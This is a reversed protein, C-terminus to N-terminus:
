VARTSWYRLHQQFLGACGWGECGTRNFAAPRLGSECRATSLFRTADIHNRRAAAIIIAEIASRPILHTPAPHSSTLRSRKSGRSVQVPTSALRHRISRLISIETRAPYTKATALDDVDKNGDIGVGSPVM